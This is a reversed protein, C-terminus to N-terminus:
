AVEGIPPLLHAIPNEALVDPKTRASHTNKRAHRLEASLWGWLTAIEAAPRSDEALEPATLGDRLARMYAQLATITLPAGQIGKSTLYACADDATQPSNHLAQNVIFFARKKLDRVLAITAKAAYLDLCSARSPILVIDAVEAARAAPFDTQPPTDIVVLGFGDAEAQELADNLDNAFIRRADLRAKSTRNQEKFTRIRDKFWQGTSGQPDMDILLTAIGDNQAAVAIHVALTTKGVGGKTSVIALRDM